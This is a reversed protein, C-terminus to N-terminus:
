KQECNYGDIRFIEYGDVNQCHTIKDICLTVSEVPRM